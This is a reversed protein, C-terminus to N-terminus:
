YVTEHNSDRMKIITKKLKKRARTLLSEIAKVSTNMIEAIEKVKKTEYLQLTIAMRERGPLGALISHITHSLSEQEIQDARKECKDSNVNESLQSAIHSPNKRIKSRYNIATNVALRMFWANFDPNPTFLKIKSYLRLFIEQSLDFADERNGVFRYALNYIKNQYLDIVEELAPSLGNLLREGAINAKTKFESV